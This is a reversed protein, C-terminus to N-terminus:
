ELLADEVVNVIDQICVIDEDEVGDVIEQLRIHAEFTHNVQQVFRALAELDSKIDVDEIIDTTMSLDEPDIGFTDSFLILVKQAIPSLESNPNQTM